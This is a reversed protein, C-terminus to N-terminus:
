RNVARVCLFVPNRAEKEYREPRREGFEETPRPEHVTDLEFGTDLLPNVIESFPRRYFPVDVSWEKTKVEVEYYNAEGDRPFADVPNLVSFVVFGGPVLVRAFESFTQRWDRVYGLALASVVGDFEDDSAFAFPEALDARHFEAGDGVKERAHDLMRESVDVGVVDAGQELLWETYIGTGCGADLIRDGDVDPVLSTTAPFEFHANYPNTEVEADYEDALADYADEAIPDEGPAM